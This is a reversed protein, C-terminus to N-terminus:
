SSSFIRMSQHYVKDDGFTQLIIVADLICMVAKVRSAVHPHMRINRWVTASSHVSAHVYTIYM